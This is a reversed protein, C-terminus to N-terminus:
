ALSSLGHCMVFSLTGFITPRSTKEALRPLHITESLALRFGLWEGIVAAARSSLPLDVVDSHVPTL